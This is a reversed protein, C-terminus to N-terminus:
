RTAKFSREGECIGHTNFLDELGLREITDKEPVGTDPDWGMAKRYEYALTDIDITIGALPGEGKPPKGCLRPPLKIESTRIGERLNFAQCLTQIRAGSELAEKINMDWGTVANLFEIVPYNAGFVVPFLCLGACTAVQWYCSAAASNRLGLTKLKGEIFKQIELEEGTVSPISVLTRLFEVIKSRNKEINELVKQESEPKL